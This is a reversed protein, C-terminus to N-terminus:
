PNSLRYGAPIIVFYCFVAGFIFLFAGAGVTPLVWKRENPKLAPLFFALTQWLLMPAAVVLALKLAVSFRLSFGGILANIYFKGDPVYARIPDVLIDIVVPTAFYLIIAASFVSVVCITLRRRLEGLHDFLPMRAPGIPM